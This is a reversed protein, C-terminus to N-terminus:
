WLRFGPSTNQMNTIQYLLNPGYVLVILLVAITLWPAWRDLWSPTLQPDQISEAEPVQPVEAAPAPKRLVTVVLILVFLYAGIFLISGGIATQLLRPEWNAPVYPAVGLPTRRPAGLLGLTHMANSFIMMGIFWIWGQALALKPAWLKRGTIHPVLWYAIGMFTMTAASAVTLHFHGPVWATNHIVLNINYSANTIGGIGGFIFLVGSLIQISVSPDKWPLKPIWGLLGKGGRQRGAYELSAVVTFATLLSPFAVAYTLVAHITKWITPVGPDTYQHHFGLPTSLVLFMWFSFRALSDSFLKGGAQKPLMAYWSVYAPLLWFYVLPHGTFWFYTRNLQPDVGPLLGLSWPLLQTLIEVAVGLTAIQWMVMTILSGFAMLPTRTTPNDKRWRYYTIYFGFGQVWSGVVVFVLGVYFSWNAQLPPYFTYLVSAENLLIPVAATLLGLTMMIFGLWNLKPMALSRRLGVMITLNFFGTIFFTTWILANLVGHLTLGQYYSALLPQFLAYLDQGNITLGSFELAQLPGFLSGISLALTAVLVQLGIFRKEGKSLVYKAPMASPAVAAIPTTTTIATM